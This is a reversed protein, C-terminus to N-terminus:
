LRLIDELSPVDKDSASVTVDHFKLIYKLDICQLTDEQTLHLPNLIYPCPYPCLDKQSNEHICLHREPVPEEMWVNDGLSEVPFHEETDDDDEEAISTLHHALLDDEPSHGEMRPDLSSEDDEKYTVHCHVISLSGPSPHAKPTAPRFSLNEQM